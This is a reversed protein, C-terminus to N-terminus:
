VNDPLNLEVLVPILETGLMNKALVHQIQEISFANQNLKILNLYTM